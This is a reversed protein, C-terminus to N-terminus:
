KDSVQTEKREVQVEEIDPLREGDVERGFSQWTFQNDNVRAYVQISSTTRGDALYGTSEVLWNEGKRKWSGNSFGGNSDFVWSRVQQHLPDWGIVQTGTFDENGPTLVRFNRTLFKGNATWQVNTEVTSDDSKDIWEGVMWELEALPTQEADTLDANTDHISDLLWLGDEKVYIATYRSASTYGGSSVFAQGMESAVSSTILRISDITVSMKVDEGDAFLEQFMEEIARRGKLQRNSDPVDYVGNESWLQALQQANRENFAAVYGASALRVADIDTEIRDQDSTTAEVVPRGEEDQFVGGLFGSYALLLVVTVTMFKMSM